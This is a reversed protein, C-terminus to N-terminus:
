AVVMLQSMVNIFLIYNVGEDGFIAQADGSARALSFVLRWPFPFFHPTSTTNPWYLTLSIALSHRAHTDSNDDNMCRLLLLVYWQEVIVLVVHLFINLTSNYVPMQFVVYVAWGFGAVSFLFWQHFNM